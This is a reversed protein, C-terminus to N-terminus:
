LEATVKEVEFRESRLLEAVAEESTRPGWPNEFRTLYRRWSARVELLAPAEINGAVRVEIRLPEESGSEVENLSSYDLRSLAIGSRSRDLALRAEEVVDEILWDFEEIDWRGVFDPPNHVDPERRGDPFETDEADVEGEAQNLSRIRAGPRAPPYAIVIRLDIQQGRLHEPELEEGIEVLGALRGAPREMTREWSEQEDKPTEADLVPEMFPTAFQCWAPLGIEAVAAVLARSVGQRRLKRLTYVSELHLYATDIHEFQDRDNFYPGYVYPLEEDIFAWLDGHM